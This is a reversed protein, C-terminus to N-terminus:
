IFLKVISLMLSIAGLFILIAQKYSIDKLFKLIIINIVFYNLKQKINFSNYYEFPLDIINGQKYANYIQYQSKIDNKNIKEQSYFLIKKGNKYIFNINSYFIIFSLNWSKEFLWRNQNVEKISIKDNKFIKHLAEYSINKRIKTQDEKTYKAFRLCYFNNIETYIDKYIYLIIDKIYIFKYICYFYLFLLFLPIIIYLLNFSKHALLIPFTHFIIFYFCLILTLCAGGGAGWLLVIPNTYRRM